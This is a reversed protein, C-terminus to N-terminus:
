GPNRTGCTHCGSERMIQNIERREQRTFNRSPNRAPISRGAFPGPRLTSARGAGPSAPIPYAAARDVGASTGSIVVLPNGVSGRSAGYRVEEGSLWGEGTAGGGGCCNQSPELYLTVRGDPDVHNVPDDGVYAYLNFQDDYGIPDTQYFRGMYPSYARAKYHYAGLENLWVQGTYQFRGSNATAPIGYEDYRNTALLTGASNTVAVISGQHDTHLWRRDTLGAGHYWVLPDDATGDSGHVYRETLGNNADYEAVLADGDYLFRNTGANGAVQYLRGLPDYTLTVGNSAGTLRNEIDYTYTITQNNPGPTTILNGNPDYTFNAAGAASYQNLGNTTYNRNAAYHGTWAYADNNRTQTAIQSAPNRTYTWTVDGTTGTLDHLLLSPRGIGDYGYATIAGSAAVMAGRDGDPAYGIMIPVGSGSAAGNERIYNLRGTQDYDYAFFTGDPHTLRTRNGNPDYGYGLIRTVGGLNISQTLQRGFGDYAGTVGEGTPSAYRAFLQLNRLDYGYHVATAGGDPYTKSTLRNLRDYAYVIRRGDRKRLETRNGNPDYSYAEYDGTACADAAPNLTGGPAGATALASAQSADNYAAPRSPPPASSPFLWCSQRGHGDYVLRARNGNADIVTTVQGNANYAWTAEAAEDASGVGERRQVRQGAADYVNRTIRDPGFANTGTGPPGPTCASAPLGGFSAPNMRVATCELRGNVDYSYQTVTRAVGDAGKVTEGLKRGSADYQTEISRSVTFGTWAAPAVAESQWAALTGSEQRVLRGAGDYSNRVALFPLWGGGDPDPSITGTVRGLGDYRIAGTYPSPAAQARAAAPALLVAALVCLALLRRM